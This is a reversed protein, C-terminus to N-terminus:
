AGKATRESQELCSRLTAGVETAHPEELLTHHEGPVDHVEVGASALAGWGLEREVGRMMPDVDRARLVTLRGVFPAPRYSAAARFFARTLWADRLEHPMPAMRLRHLDIRLAMSWENLRERIRKRARELVYRGGGSRYHGRVRAVRDHHIEVGPRYTDILALSAVREGAAHLMRAMEFAIVGGGCYGALHYPGHPQVARVEDLYAAAAEEIHAFPESTGDVGRAQLAYFPRDHAVHRALPSLGVVNGGAGHVCFLPTRRGTREIPVIYSFSRDPFAHSQSAAALDEVNAARIRVALQEVTPAEFLTALPLDTGHERQIRAFLRVALLSHGGLAFFNHRIGLEESTGLVERFLRGLSREIEDRPAVFEVDVALHREDPAPLAARDVKGNPTQPLKPLIVFASPIMYEPLRERLRAALEVGQPAADEDCVCYAVLRVDDRREARAVVLAERVRPDEKLQAEIEGPEIRFGRIKLQFDLRGLHEFTGDGRLRALDGTRYLRAGPASAFPDPIFRERTLEPRQFYGTAVGDGGICLEGAVGIPCLAGHRDFVYVQTRDLPRGIPVGDATPEVRHLLSWITTETPGYVNWLAGCRALLQDALERPLAEGGCLITLDFAGEFGAEVLMRWSAPTAQMFTPRLDRCLAALREGDSVVDSAVVYLSAGVLPPLLLELGAIDFAITTTSLIRDAEGMGPTHAMSSLFNALAYRPVEVGKPRGTSGSTYIVYAAANSPPDPFEYSGALADSPADIELIRANAAAEPLSARVKSDTLVIRPAADEIVYQLRLAPHRPDLPVYAASTRLVALLAVLLEKSREIYVAVREGPGAGAARLRLSLAQVRAELEAYTYTGREDSVAPASPRRSAQEALGGHLSLERRSAPEPSRACALIRAREGPSPMPIESLKREPQEAVQTLLNVYHEAIRRATDADFLDTSYEFAASRGLESDHVLLSLDFQSAGRCLMLPALSISESGPTMPVNQYDFMVQVLPSGGPTRELSLESVLREFPLDQHDFAELSRERVHRLLESFSQEPAVEVRVPLTNVLSGVFAESSVRNRNAVPVGVVLDMQGSHRHLLLDFAALLVMFLTAGQARALESLRDLLPGPLELLEIAGASSRRATRPRDTPLLLPEVGLLRQKWYGLERELLEGQWTRRQYAAYDVYGLASKPPPMPRGARSADYFAVLDQLLLGMSWADTILHHLSVALVHRAPGVKYVVARALPDRALDFPANALESAAALARAEAEGDHGFDLVPLDIRKTPDIWLRPEGDVTEVNARLLEHRRVMEDFAEVLARGDLEGEVRVAGAVNYASGQPDLQHLFWMREQSFSLPLDSTRDHASLPPLAVERPLKAVLAALAAPTPAEFVSQLSVRVHLRDRLRSALQTALLSHGGLWLFDADPAVHEVGLLEAMCAAVCEILEQPAEPAEEPAPANLREFAQEVYLDRCHSRQLKGSSTKPISGPGVLVLDSVKLEHESAVAAKIASEIETLEGLRKPDIEQVVVLREEGEEDLSFAIGSGPRTASHAREATSELDEPYHNQGRVILLDKVRGTVFLRSGRLYGLDGTRLYTRGQEQEGALRAHFVRETVDPREFYGGAVSPAHVWIEGIEGAQKRTCQEPDVVLVEFDQLPKGCDVFERAREGPEALRARGGRLDREELREVAVPQDLTGFTVGLTAEALGYCAVLAGPQLGSSAVFREGFRRLTEARVREAGSFAIRWSSLDLAAAQEETVRRACLEYAFNPGGSITGRYRSIAELWRVPRQVFTMPSMLVLDTGRCLPLLMAGILGMDHYPPLWSVWCDEEGMRMAAALAGINHLLHAHSLMVGKPDSTSGSTYQLVALADPSIRQLQLPGAEAEDSALWILRSLEPDRARQSATRDILGRSSLAFRARSDAILRHLREEARSFRPPYAPVAVVGAYFCGVLGVVYDIGPAHLLLAREGPKAGAEQLQSAVACARADLEAYCLGVEDGDSEGLFRLITREPAREAYWRFIAGLELDTGPRLSPQKPQTKLM